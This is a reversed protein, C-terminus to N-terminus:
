LAIGAPEFIPALEPVVMAANEGRFADHGNSVSVLRPLLDTRDAHEMHTIIGEVSHLFREPADAFKKVVARLREAALEKLERPLVQVSLWPPSDIMNLQPFPDFRRFQTATYDFLRELDFVNYVQVTTNFDLHTINLEEAHADLFRLNRDFVRWDSPNRILSNVEDFGEISAHIRVEKFHPWLQLAREPLVTANTSYSIVMSSARGADILRQLYDFMQVSLLPEGGAFLIREATQTYHDFREWFESREFWDLRRMEGIEPHEEPLGHIEKFEPIMTKSARPFCMRCRLNCVNGLGVEWKVIVEEARGDAGTKAVLEHHDAFYTDNASNRMSYMGADEHLYCSACAPNRRGALQDRRLATMFDSNWATDFSPLEHIRLENGAADRVPQHAVPGQCCAFLVGRQDVYSHMWPLICFTDSPLKTM